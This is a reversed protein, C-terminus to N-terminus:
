RVIETTTDPLRKVKVNSYDLNRKVMTETHFLCGNNYLTDYNNYVDYYKRISEYDGYALQDNIGDRYDNGSPIYVTNPEIDSFDLRGHILIDYRMRVYVDCDKPASSFALMMNFWQNLTTRVITEPAKNANYVWDDHKFYEPDVHSENIHVEVIEHDGMADLHNTKCRDYSRLWGSYILCVKM